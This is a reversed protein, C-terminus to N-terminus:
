LHKAIRALAEELRGQGLCLAIRFYGEGAEPSGFGNGPTVVVGAEMLLWSIPRPSAAPVKAWVYFTAEPLRCSVGAQRLGGVM